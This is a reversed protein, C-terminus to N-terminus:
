EGAIVRFVAADEREIEYRGSRSPIIAAGGDPLELSMGVEVMKVTCRTGLSLLVESSDGAVFEARGSGHPLLSVSFERVPLDIHMFGDKKLQPVLLEPCGVSYDLMGLLTEVDKFKHTLGARVVNDSCAMVEVLDGDLYAHPINSDIFIARGPPVSILNMIFVVLLGVDSDGYRRQLREFVQLEVPLESSKLGREAIARVVREREAPKARLLASLVGRRVDSQSLPSEGSVVAAVLDLPLVGQLEPYRQLVDRIETMTKLGYLLTVDSLPIGVEPKHSIDPYNIPDIGHLARAKERDPHAQISLGSTPDVSLVKVMFPLVSPALHAGLVGSRQADLDTLPVREGDPLEVEACGKPHAGIWYEALPVEPVAGSVLAAIRSATGVKGWSYSQVKGFLRLARPLGRSDGTKPQSSSM